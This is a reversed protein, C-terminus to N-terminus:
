CARSATVTYFIAFEFPLVGVWAWVRRVTEAEDRAVEAFVCALVLAFDDEVDEEPRLDALADVFDVRLADVFDEVAWVAEEPM